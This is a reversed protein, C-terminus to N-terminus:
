SKIGTDVVVTQPPPPSERRNPTVLGALYTVIMMVIEKMWADVVGGRIAIYSASVACIVGMAVIAFLAVTIPELKQM